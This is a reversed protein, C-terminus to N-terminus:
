QSPPELIAILQRATSTIRDAFQALAATDARWSALYDFASQREIGLHACVIATVSEAELERLEYREPEGPQGRFHMLAHAAEHVLTGLRRVAGSSQNIQIVGTKGSYMGGTADPFPALEVRLGQQELKNQLQAFYGRATPCEGDSFVVKPAEPLAEGDTQAIDFVYSAHFGRVETEGTETNKGARPAMIQIGTEGRRVQRKLSRWVNYGAVHTANPSQAFILLQNRFSYRHFRAAAKLFESWRSRANELGEALSELAKNSVPSTNTSPNSVPPNSSTDTYM